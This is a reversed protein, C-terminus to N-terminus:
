IEFIILFPGHVMDKLQLSKELQNPPNRVGTMIKIPHDIKNLRLVCTLATKFLRKKLIFIRRTQIHQPDTSVTDEFSAAM